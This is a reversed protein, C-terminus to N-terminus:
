PVFVRVGYTKSTPNIPSATPNCLRLKVNDAASVYCNSTLGADFTAPLGVACESGTAAGAVAVDNEVCTAATIAPEPDWTVTSRFVDGMTRPGDERWKWGDINTFKVIQHPRLTKNTGTTTILKANNHVFSTNTYFTAAGLAARGGSATALSFADGNDASLTVVNAVNSAGILSRLVTGSYGFASAATNCANVARALDAADATDDGDITFQNGTPVGAVATFAVGAITVTDGAQVGTLTVTDWTVAPGITIQQGVAAGGFDTIAVPSANKVRFTNAESVDPTASTGLFQPNFVFRGTMTANDDTLPRPTHIPPEMGLVCIPREFNVSCTKNALNVDTGIAVQTETVSSGIRGIGVLLEWNGSGGYVSLAGGHVRIYGCGYGDSSKAWVSCAVTSGKFKGVNWTPPFADRAANTPIYTSLYQNLTAKNNTVEIRFSYKAARVNVSDRYWNIGVGTGPTSWGSLSGDPQLHIFESNSLLNIGSLNRGVGMSFNDGTPTFMVDNGTGSDSIKSGIANGGSPSYISSWRNSNASTAFTFYTPPTTAGTPELYLGHWTNGVGYVDFITSVAASSNNPESDGGTFSNANGRIAYHIGWKGKVFTNRFTNANTNAGAMGDVLLAVKGTVSGASNDVSIGTADTFYAGGGAQAQGLQFGITSFDKLTMREVIGAVGSVLTVGSQPETSKGIATWGGYRRGNGSLTLCMGKAYCHLTTYDQGQGITDTYFGLRGHLRLTGSPLRLPVVAALAADAANQISASADNTGTTDVGWWLPTSEQIKGTVILPRAGSPTVAGTDTWTTVAGLTAMLLTSGSSRGYVKYGTAGAVAQWTLKTSQVGAPPSGASEGSCSTVYELWTGEVGSTATSPDIATYVTENGASTGRYIRYSSAGEFAQWRIRAQNYSASATWSFESSGATEGWDGLATIKFYHAGNTCSGGSAYNAITYSVFLNPRLYAAVPPGLWTEGAASLSSVRYFYSSSTSLSGADSAPTALTVIPASLPNAYFVQSQPATIPGALTVSGTGPAVDVGGAGEFRIPATISGVASAIRLKCTVVISKTTGARAQAAALAPGDDASGNCAAGDDLPNVTDAFRATLTRASSSGFALVSATDNPTHSQNNLAAISASVSALTGQDGAVRLSAETNDNAARTAIESQDAALLSAVQSARTSAENNVSTVIASDVSGLNDIARKQQQLGMALKDYANEHVGPNFAGQSRFSVKQTLDVTRALLITSQDACRSGATLTVTGGAAQGVGSVSYDPGRNLTTSVGSPDTITIVLDSALLIKFNYDYTTDSGDCMYSSTNTENPVTALALGALAIIFLTIIKKV